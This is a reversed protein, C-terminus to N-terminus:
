DALHEQLQFPEDYHTISGEKTRLHSYLIDVSMLGKKLKEILPSSPINM